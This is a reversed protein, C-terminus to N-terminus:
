ISQELEDAIERLCKAAESGKNKVLDRITFALDIGDLVLFFVSVGIILEGALKTGAKAGSKAVSKGAAQAGVKRAAKAGAKGAAKAGAEGAAKAGAEFKIGASYIGKPSGIM